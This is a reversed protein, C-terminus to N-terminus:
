WFCFFFKRYIEIIKVPNFSFDIVEKHESRCEEIVTSKTLFIQLTNNFNNLRIM